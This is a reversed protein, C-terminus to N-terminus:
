ISQLREFVLGLACAVTLKRVEQRDGSFNMCKTYSDGCGSIGFWVLGAPKGESPGPGAVGSVAISIVDVCRNGLDDNCVVNKLAGVCMQRVVQESVAGHTELDDRSVGLLHEKVDYSYSIIGGEFVDSAGPVSALVSGIMGSTLSEATVLKINKERALNIVREAISSLEDGDELNNSPNNDADPLDDNASSVLNCDATSSSDDGALITSVEKFYQFMSFVTMVLATIMVAWSLLFVLMYMNDPLSLVFASRKIIFMLVAVLTLATKIKGSMRAAVVVGETAALMRLGSVIFERTIIILAVWSPLDGLEVLALLAAAVLVKDAIPDLFKGLATIQNRSRAIYGDIGDTLALVAYVAAAVWPKVAIDLYQLDQISGVSPDIFWEPWPALLAIVFLPIFVIRTITILNATTKWENKFDPNSM